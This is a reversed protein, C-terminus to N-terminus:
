RKGPFNSSKEIIRKFFIIVFFSRSFGHEKVTDLTLANGESKGMRGDNVVLFAGHLWYRALPQGTAAESQAIENTHHVPIHDTGGTHIDLSQGFAKMAM